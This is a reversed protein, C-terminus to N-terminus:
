SIVLEKDTLAHYLNQLQHVYELRRLRSSDSPYDVYFGGDKVDVYIVPDENLFYNDKKVLGCKLLWGETLLVPEFGTIGEYRDSMGFRKAHINAGNPKPQIAEVTVVDGNHLVLNGIRLESAKDVESHLLCFLGEKGEIEARYHLFNKGDMLFTRDRIIAFEGTKRWRVV